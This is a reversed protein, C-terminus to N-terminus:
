LRREGRETAVVTTLDDVRARLRDIHEAAMIMVETEEGFGIKEGATIMAAVTRLKHPLEHLTENYAQSM